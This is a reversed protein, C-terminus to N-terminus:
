QPMVADILIEASAEQIDEPVRPGGCLYAVPLQAPLSAHMAGGAQETEDFKTIVLGKPQLQRYVKTLREADRPHIAAPIVLLVDIPLRSVSSLCDVLRKMAHPTTPPLSATDVMVIDAKRSSVAGAFTQTDSAVDFPVGILQAFRRMQDISGVRFTDLTVISVSRQLDLHARAALKAITTTKGVGTPGVCVLVRPGPAEIPSPLINVSEALRQRLFTKLSATSRAAKPANAALQTALSGEIRFDNLMSIARDKAPRKTANMDELLSRIAELEPRIHEELAARTNELTQSTPPAARRPTLPAQTATRGNTAIRPLDKAFTSSAKENVRAQGPGATVEFSTHALSGPRGNSVQRATGIMANPGYAAKVAAIAEEVTNGRFTEFQM